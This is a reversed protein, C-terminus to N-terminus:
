APVLRVDDLARKEDGEIVPAWRRVALWRHFRASGEKVLKTAESRCFRRRLGLGAPEGEVAHLQLM